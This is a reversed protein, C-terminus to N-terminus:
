KKGAACAFNAEDNTDGTGKYKAVQPHPCLPRTMRAGQSPDADSVWKAAIIRDPAVGKEVWQELATFINHGADTPAKPNGTQGFSNAGPGGTCHQMGPAMYLRLFQNTEAAGMADVVSNYYRISNLPSIAADSWGHYIILKGGGTKFAKMNPDNANLAHAAKDNAVKIGTDFNFTKFDWKPDEFVMSVFFGNSFAYQLSRGPAAGTVWLSWGGPGDEGGVVSGPFLQQGKSNHPGEYLKKLAEAQPATLCDKSDGEKCVITSPDFHCERPDNIIGDKVGDQADCAALVADHIAPIKAAPIYSKPDGQLAQLDWIGSVLMNTWFNAPAGALIGNYDEPFRQAEMLAERGGNSCSAFYSHKPANGYFAQIIAKAKVTMEHIGRYGFDIVKEPHGLAWSADTPSGSHGTDTEAAAYGRSVAFALGQYIMAGAFGGNGVGEFKGNWGTLPMWVEIKIDSDRSPKVEAMVRCFAPVGKFGPGGPPAASNQTFEGAAVSQASTITTDPLKLSSLSECSAAFAPAAMILMLGVVSAGVIYKHFTVAKRFKCITM